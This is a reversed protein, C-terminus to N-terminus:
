NTADNEKLILEYLKEVSGVGDLNASGFDNEFIYWTVLGFNGTHKDLTDIIGDFAIVLGKSYGDFDEFLQNYLEREKDIQNSLDKVVKLFDRLQPLTIM